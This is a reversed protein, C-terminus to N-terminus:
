GKCYKGPIAVKAEVEREAVTDEHVFMASFFVKQTMNTRSLSIRAERSNKATEGRIDPWSIKNGGKRKGM